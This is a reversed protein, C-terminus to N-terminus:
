YGLYKKGFKMYLFYLAIPIGIITFITRGKLMLVERRWPNVLSPVTAGWKLRSAYVKNDKDYLVSTDWPLWSSIGFLSNDSISKEYDSQEVVQYSYQDFYNARDVIAMFSSPDTATVGNQWYFLPKDAHAVDCFWIDGNSQGIKVIDSYDLLWVNDSSIGVGVKDALGWVNSTSYLINYWLAKFSEM